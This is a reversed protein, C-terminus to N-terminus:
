SATTISRASRPRMISMLVAASSPVLVDWSSRQARRLAPVLDYSVVAEVRRKLPLPYDNALAQPLIVLNAQVNGPALGSTPGTFKGARIRLREERGLSFGREPAADM